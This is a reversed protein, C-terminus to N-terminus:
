WLGMEVYRWVGDKLAYFWAMTENKGVNFAGAECCMNHVVHEYGLPIIEGGYSVDVAGGRQVFFFPRGGMIQWDFTEEAGLAETQDVGDIIVHGDVELVWSEGWAWLGHISDSGAPFRTPIRYIEEGDRTVVAEYTQDTEEFVGEVAYVQGGITVPPIPWNRPPVVRQEARNDFVWDLIIQRFELTGPQYPGPDLVLYEEVGFPGAQWAHEEIRSVWRPLENLQRRSEAIAVLPDLLDKARATIMVEGEIALAGDASVGRFLAGSGPGCGYGFTVAGGDGLRFTLEYAAICAPVGGVTVPIDLAATLEALTAPDNVVHTVYYPKAPYGENRFLGIDLAVTQSLGADWALNIQSGTPHSFRPDPTPTGIPGATPEPEVAQVGFPNYAIVEDWNCGSEACDAPTIGEFLSGDAGTSLDAARLEARGDQQRVYLLLEGGASFRPWGDVAPGPRSEFVTEGTAADVVRVARGALDNGSAPLVAFAIRGGDPSWQPEIAAEEPGPLYTKESTNLDILALRRVLGSSTQEGAEIFALYGPRTPHWAFSEPNLVAAAESVPRLDGSELDLTYLPGSPAFDGGGVLLARMGPVWGLLTYSEQAPDQSVVFRRVAGTVGGPEIKVVYAAQLIGGGHDIEEAASPMWALWGDDSVFIPTVYKEGLLQFTEAPLLTVRELSPYGIAVLGGEDTPVALWDADATILGQPLWFAGMTSRTLNLAVEVGAANFVRVNNKEDRLALFEGSPSWGLVRGRVTGLQATQLTTFDYLTPAADAGAPTYVIQGGPNAGFGSEPSYPFLANAMGQLEEETFEGLLATYAGNQAWVLKRNSGDEVFPEAPISLPEGKLDRQQLTLVRGDELVFTQVLTPGQRGSTFVIPGREFPFPMANPDPVLVPFAFLDDAQQLSIEPTLVTMSEAIALLDERQLDDAIIEVSMEDTEWYLFESGVNLVGWWGSRGRVTVEEVAKLPPQGAIFDVQRILVQTEGAQYHLSLTFPRDAAPLLTEVGDLELPFPVANPNPLLIGFPSQFAAETLQSALEASPAPVVTPDAAPRPLLDPVLRTFLFALAFFLALAGAARAALSLGFGWAARRAAQSHQALLHARLVARRSGAPSFDARALRAAFQLADQVEVPAGSAHNTKGDILDAFLQASKGPLDDRENM